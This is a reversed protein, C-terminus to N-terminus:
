ADKSSLLHLVLSDVLKDMRANAKGFEERMAANTNHLDERMAANAKGFEERMAASTNNLDERMAANTNNLDERLNEHEKIGRAVTAELRTVKANLEANMGDFKADINRGIWFAVAVFAVTSIAVVSLVVAVAQWYSSTVALIAVENTM